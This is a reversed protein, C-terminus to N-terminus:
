LTDFSSELSKQFSVKHSKVDVVAQRSLMVSIHDFIAPLQSSTLEVGGGRGHVQM